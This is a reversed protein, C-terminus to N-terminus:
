GIINDYLDELANKVFKESKKIRKRSNRDMNSAVTMGVFVGIVTGVAMGRMIKSSMICFM